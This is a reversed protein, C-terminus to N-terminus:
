AINFNGGALFGFRFKVKQAVVKNVEDFNHGSEGNGKGSDDVTPVIGFRYKKYLGFVGDVGAFKMEYILHNPNTLDNTSITPDTLIDPFGAVDIKGVFRLFGFDLESSEAITDVAVLIEGSPNYSLNPSSNVVGDMLNSGQFYSNGFNTGGINEGNEGAGIHPSASLLTYDGGDSNNFKPDTSFSGVMITTETAQFLALTTYNVGEWTINCEINNNDMRAIGDERGTGGLPDTDFTEIKSDSDFYCGSWPSNGNLESGIFICLFYLYDEGGLAGWAMDGWETPFQDDGPTNSTNNRTITSDIFITERAASSIASLALADYTCRLVICQYFFLLSNTNAIQAELLYDKIIFGSFMVKKNNRLDILHTEAVGDLVCYGDGKISLHITIIGLNEAYNGTGVVITDGESAATAAALITPYPDEPDNLTGTGDSSKSVFHHNALPTAGTGDAAWDIGIEFNHAM